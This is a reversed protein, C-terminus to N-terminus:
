GHRQRFDDMFEALARAGAEPMANYLSARMGGVQAHGRLHHLGAAEAAALFDAERAPDALRFCINTTSRWAGDVVARYFGASGDIAAYLRAAKRRNREALATLGGEEGIWEFVLSALLIEALPPTNVCSDQEAQRRYSWTAPARSAPRALLDERVIVVCLGPPGINKQASAYLLGFRACDLPGALFCSTADAVRPATGCDPLSPWARGDATENLTLHCYATDDPLPEGRGDPLARLLATGFRAAEGHARRAWYGSDYYVAPEAGELLNLPVAAFQHSAGGALFLIRHSDPLDLLRALTARAGAILARTDPHSFPRELLGGGPGGAFLQERARALVPAPIAAPGAAFNYDGRAAM